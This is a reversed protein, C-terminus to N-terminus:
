QMSPAMNNQCLIHQRSSLPVLRSVSRRLCGFMLQDQRPCQSLLGIEKTCAVHTGRHRMESFATVDDVLGLCHLMMNPTTSGWPEPCIKRERNGSMGSISADRSEPCLKRSIKRSKGLIEGPVGSFVGSIGCASSERTRGQGPLLCYDVIALSKTCGSAPFCRDMDVAKARKIQIGRPKSRRGPSQTCLALPLSNDKEDDLKDQKPHATLSASTRHISNGLQYGCHALISPMNCEGWTLVSLCPLPHCSMSLLAAQAQLPASPAETLRRFNYFPLSNETILPAEENIM